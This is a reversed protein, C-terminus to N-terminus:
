NSGNIQYCDCLPVLNGDNTWIFGKIIKAGSTGVGLNVETDNDIYFTGNPELTINRFDAGVLRSSNQDSYSAIILKVPVSYACTNYLSAKLYVKEETGFRTIEEGSANVTKAEYNYAKGIQLNKMYFLNESQSTVKSFHSLRIMDIKSLDLGNAPGDFVPENDVYTRIVDKNSDIIFKINYWKGSEFSRANQFVKQAADLNEKDLLNAASVGYANPDVNAAVAMYGKESFGLTVPYQFVDSIVPSILMHRLGNSRIDFSIYNTKATSYENLGGQAITLPYYTRPDNGSATSISHFALANEGDVAEVTQSPYYQKSWKYKLAEYNTYNEAFAADYGTTKGFSKSTPSVTTGDALKVGSAINVTYEAFKNYNNVTCKYKNATSDYSGTCGINEGDSTVSINGALTSEDAAGEFEIDATGTKRDFSIDKVDSTKSVTGIKVNDVAFAAILSATQTYDIFVLNDFNESDAYSLTKILKNDLYISVNDTDRTNDVIFKINYWHCPEYDGDKISAYTTLYAGTVSGNAYTFPVLTDQKHAYYTKNSKFMLTPINAHSSWNKEDNELDTDLFMVINRAVTWASSFDFSVYNIGGTMYEKLGGLINRNKCCTWIGNLDTSTLANSYFNMYKSGPDIYSGGNTGSMVGSYENAKYIWSLAPATDTDYTDNVVPPNDTYGAASVLATLACFSSLAMVFALILSLIRKM